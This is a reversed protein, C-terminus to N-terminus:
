APLPFVANIQGTGSSAFYDTVVEVKGAAPLVSVGRVEGDRGDTTAGALAGPVVVALLAALSLIPKM